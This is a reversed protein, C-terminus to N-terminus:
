RSPPFIESIGKNLATISEARPLAVDYKPEELEYRVFDFEAREGFDKIPFVSAFVEELGQLTRDTAASYAQLFQEYSNRQVEILNPMQAVENIRGYSRRVRKKGTFSEISNAEPLIHTDALANM